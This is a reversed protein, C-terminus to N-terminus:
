RCRRADYQHEATLLLAGPGDRALDVAFAEEALAQGIYAAVRHEDEVVLVRM